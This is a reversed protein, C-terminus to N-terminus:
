LLFGDIGLIKTVQAMANGEEYISARIKNGKEKEIYTTISIDGTFGNRLHILHTKDRGFNQYSPVQPGM